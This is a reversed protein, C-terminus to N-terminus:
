KQVEALAPKQVKVGKILLWLALGCEAIFGIGWAPYSIIKWDPLLFHQLVSILLTFCDIILLIGLIKPLFGSKFVLFGLPLLWV